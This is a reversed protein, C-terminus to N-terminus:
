ILNFSLLLMLLTFYKEIQILKKIHKENLLKLNFHKDFIDAFLNFHMKTLVVIFLIIALYNGKCCPILIFLSAIENIRNFYVMYGIYSFKKPTKINSISEDSLRFRLLIMFADYVIILIFAIFANTLFINPFLIICPAFILFYFLAEIFKFFIIGKDNLLKMYGNEDFQRKRLFSLSNNKHYIMFDVDDNELDKRNVITYGDNFLPLKYVIGKEILLIFIIGWFLINFLFLLIWNM